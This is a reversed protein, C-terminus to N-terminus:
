TTAPARDAEVPEPTHPAPNAGFVYRPRTVAVLVIFGTIAAGLLVFTAKATIADALMGLPWSGVPFLSFTM